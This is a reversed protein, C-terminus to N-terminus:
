NLRLTHRCGALTVMGGDTRPLAELTQCAKNHLTLLLQVYRVAYMSDEGQEQPVQARRALWWESSLGDRENEASSLAKM